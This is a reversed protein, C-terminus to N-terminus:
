IYIYIYRSFYTCKLNSYVIKGNRLGYSMAYKLDQFFHTQGNKVSFDILGLSPHIPEPFDTLIIPTSVKKRLNSVCLTIYDFLHKKELM